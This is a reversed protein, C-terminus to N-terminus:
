LLQIFVNAAQLEKISTAPPHALRSQIQLPKVPGMTKSLPQLQLLKPVVLSPPCFHASCPSPFLWHHLLLVCCSGDASSSYGHAQKCVKNPSQTQHCLSARQVAGRSASMTRHNGAHKGHCGWGGQALAAGERSVGLMSCGLWKGRHAEAGASGLGFGLFAHLLM